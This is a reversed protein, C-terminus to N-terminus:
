PVNYKGFYAVFSVKSCFSLKATCYPLSPNPTPYPSQLRASGAAIGLLGLGITCQMVTGANNLLFTARDSDFGSNM